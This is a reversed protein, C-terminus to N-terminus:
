KKDIATLGNFIYVPHEKEYEDKCEKCEKFKAESPFSENYSNDTTQHNIVYKKHSKIKCPYDFYGGYSMLIPYNTTPYNAVKRGDIMKIHKKKGNFM